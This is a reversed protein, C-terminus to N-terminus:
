ASAEDDPAEQSELWPRMKAMLRDAFDPHETGGPLEAAVEEAIRKMATFRARAEPTQALRQNEEMAAKVVDYGSTGDPLPTGAERFSTELVAGWERFAGELRDRM